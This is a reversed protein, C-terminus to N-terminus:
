SIKYREGYKEKFKLLNSRSPLSLTEMDIENISVWKIESIKGPEMIEPNGSVYRAIYSPSVWHQNEQLLIHDIVELLEVVEIDMNFEEKIERKVADECKEGFKVSGGPFDWKGIENRSADGRKSLFVKGEKNFILAGSGVGIFDVGKKM